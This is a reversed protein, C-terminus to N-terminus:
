FISVAEISDVKLLNYFIQEEDLQLSDVLNCLHEKRFRFEAKCEDDNM